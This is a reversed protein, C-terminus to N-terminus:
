ERGEERLTELVNGENITYQTDDDKCLCDIRREWM